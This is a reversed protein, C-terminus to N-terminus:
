PLLRRDFVFPVPMKIVIWCFEPRRPNLLFNHEAVIVSPRVMLVASLSEQWWLDGLRSSELEGFRRRIDVEHLIRIRDPIEAGVVVYGLPFDGRNMHVLNELVALSVSEAMYVVPTRPSNWRGGVRSSGEGDLRAFVGRCVRFVRGM